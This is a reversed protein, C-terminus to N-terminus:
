IFIYFCLFIIFLCVSNDDTYKKNFRKVEEEEEEEEKYIYALNLYIRVYLFIVM